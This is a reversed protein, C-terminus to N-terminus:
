DAHSAGKPAALSVLLLGTVLLAVGAVPLVLLAVTGVLVGSVGAVLAMLRAPSVVVRVPTASADAGATVDKPLFGLRAMERIADTETDAEV